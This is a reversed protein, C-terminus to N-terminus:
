YNRYVYVMIDEGCRCFEAKNFRLGILGRKRRIIGKGGLSPLARIGGIVSPAIFFIYRDILGEDNFAGCLQPGAELLVHVIGFRGLKRLLKKIPVKGACSKLPMVMCGCKKLESMKKLSAEKVCAVLTKNGVIKSYLPIRLNSDLVVRLPQRGKIYRINLSPDDKLVSGIGTVVADCQARLEHTKKRSDPCTIWKSNGGADAVKGDLSQAIKATVYPIGTRMFKNFEPNLASCEKRLVGARVKIGAAKLIKTARGANAPNPDECGFVVRKAGYHIIAKTCPPTKGYSSCPEMTVYLAAGVARRGAKKLANIEAHAGGFTKHWGEGVIKGGKVVVAGVIPNPHAGLKGKKALFIARRIFYEDGLKVPTKAM